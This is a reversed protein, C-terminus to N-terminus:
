KMKRSFVTFLGWVSLLTLSVIIAQNQWNGNPNQILAGIQQAEVGVWVALATRPIMGLTGGLLVNRLRLQLFAFLLNTLAFPLVPSLKTFFVFKREDREMQQIVAKVRPFQLLYTKLRESGFSNAIWYVVSIATLNILLLPIFGMWGWFYGFMLALLTPPILAVACGVTCVACVWLWDSFAFNRVLTENQILWAALVSSTFLPLITLFFASFSPMFLYKNIKM